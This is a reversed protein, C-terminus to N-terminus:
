TMLTVDKAGQLEQVLRLAEHASGGQGVIAFHGSEELSRAVGERFLPHDDVVIVRVARNM